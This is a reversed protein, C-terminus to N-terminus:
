YEDPHMRPDQAEEPFADEDENEYCKGEPVEGADRIEEILEERDNSLEIGLEQAVWELEDDSYAELRPWEIYNGFDQESATDYYVRGKGGLKDFLDEIFNNSM